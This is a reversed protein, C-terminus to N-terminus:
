EYMIGNTDDLSLFSYRCSGCLCAYDEPPNYDKCISQPNNHNTKMEEYFKGDIKISVLLYVQKRKLLEIVEKLDELSLECNRM